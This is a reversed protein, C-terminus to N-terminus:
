TTRRENALHQEYWAICDRLRQEVSQAPRWGLLRTARESSLYQHQIEGRAQNQIQPELDERGGARLIARTLELVSLPAGTGFNFASGLLSHDDMREALRLYALAIDHVYVYDRKPSGDSRIVPREGRLLSRITGPVIRSFNLDGPGFLNGCRTICV